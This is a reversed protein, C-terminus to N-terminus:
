IGYSTLRNVTHKYHWIGKLTAVLFQMETTNEVCLETYQGMAKALYRNTTNETHKM